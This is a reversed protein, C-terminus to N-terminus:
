GINRATLYVVIYGRNYLETYFKAIGEHSWDKSVFPMLHGLIDSRTITGDIDSVIIRRFPQYPYYFIWSRFKYDSFM